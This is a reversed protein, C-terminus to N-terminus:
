LINIKCKDFHYRNMNGKNKSEKGCHPCTLIPANAWMAKTTEAIKILGEATPNYEPRTDLTKLVGQRIKEKVNDPRSINKM